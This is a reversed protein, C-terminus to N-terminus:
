KRKAVFETEHKRHDKIVLPITAAFLSFRPQTYHNIKRNLDTLAWATYIAFARKDRGSKRSCVSKLSSEIVSYIFVSNIAAKWSVASKLAAKWMFINRVFSRFYQKESCLQWIKIPSFIAVCIFRKNKELQLYVFFEGTQMLKRYFSRWSTPYKVKDM